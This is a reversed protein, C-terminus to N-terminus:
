SLELLEPSISVSASVLEGIGPGAMVFIEGLLPVMPDFTVMVPVFKDGDPCSGSTVKLPIDAGVMSSEAVSISAITGGPAVDQKISTVVTAPDAKLLM